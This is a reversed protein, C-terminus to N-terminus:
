GKEEARVEFSMDSVTVAALSSLEVVTEMVWLRVRLLVVVVM